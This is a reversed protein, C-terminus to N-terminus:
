RTAAVTGAATPQVANRRGTAALLADAACRVIRWGDGAAALAAVYGPGLEVDRLDWRRGDWAIPGPPGAGVSLRRLFNASIGGGQAKALAEKRVWITFFALSRQGDPLGALADIERPSFQMRAIEDLEVDRRVREVDIGIERGFAVAVLTVDGAHSMSFRLGDASPLDAVYPKGLRTRAIPIEAPPRAVHRALVTRLFGHDVLYRHRLRADAFRTAHRREDQSAHSGMEEIAGPAWRRGDFIWLAIEDPALPAGSGPLATDRNSDHITM